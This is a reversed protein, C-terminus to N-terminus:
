KNRSLFVTRFTDYSSNGFMWKAGTRMLDILQLRRL